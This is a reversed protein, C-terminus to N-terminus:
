YQIGVTKIANDMISKTSAYIYLGLREFHILYLSNNGKVFYLTNNKDLITFVFHGMVDKAM